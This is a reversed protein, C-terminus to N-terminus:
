GKDDGIGVGPAGTVITGLATPTVATLLGTAPSGGITGTFNFPPLTLSVVDGKRAADSGNGSAAGLILRKALAGQSGRGAFGMVVPDAPDGDVFQVIVEAGTAPEFHVSPAGPWLPVSLADPAGSGKKVIQLDARDGSMAGIRYRVPWTIRQDTTRQVIRRLSAILNTGRGEGCWARMRLGNATAELEFSRIVVPADLDKTIRSGIGVAALDNVQLRLVGHRPSYSITEYAAPDPTSEPRAAVHTVGDYAVWWPVGRAANELAKSAPGAFRLYHSGLRPVAGAFTGLTEGCAAAADAAVLSAKVGADNRYGQAKLQKGWGGAGGLVRVRRRLGYTGTASPDVTASLTSAGLTISVRGDLPEAETLDLDAFWVGEGPVSILSRAVSRGNVQLATDGM